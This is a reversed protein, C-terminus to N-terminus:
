VSTSTTARKTNVGSHSKRDQVSRGSSPSTEPSRQTTIRINRRVKQARTKASYCMLILVQNHPLGSKCTQVEQLAKQLGDVSQSNTDRDRAAKEYEERLTELQERLEADKEALNERLSRENMALVEWDQMAQKANEFEERAYAERSILEDREKIWNQQTLTSRSRLNNVEEAQTGNEQRLTALEEKLTNNNEQLERVQDELDSIQTQFEEIRAQM